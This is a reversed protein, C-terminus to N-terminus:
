KGSSSQLRKMDALIEEAARERDAGLFFPQDVLSAGGSGIELTSKGVFESYTSGVGRKTQRRTGAVEKPQKSFWPM